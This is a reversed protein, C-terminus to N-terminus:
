RTSGCRWAARTRSRWSRPSATPWGRCAAPALIHAVSPYAPADPSNFCQQLPYRHLTAMRVRPHASLFPGLEPIWLPAGTAPGALPLAPLAASIRAFDAQFANFDWSSPRGTVYQGDSLRYWSFSGYLEPENGLELAAISGRGFRATLARAEAGALARSDLELNIGLIVRAAVKHALTTAVRLWRSDLSTRVGHPTAVGPVRWSTWDTSDGGIRLSPAAGPSLNRILQVLVPNIARPDHGAYAELAPYEPSLGLFGAPIAPGTAQDSVTLSLTGPPLREPALAAPRERVTSQHEHASTGRSAVLGAGAALAVVVVAALV